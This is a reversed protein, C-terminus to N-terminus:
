AIAVTNATATTLTANISTVGTIGVLEVLSDTTAGHNFVMTADNAGNGDTDYAFAITDLAATNAHLYGVVDALNTSSIVLATAYVAADDFLAVGGTLSHSLITGSDTSTALTGVAGVGAFDIVDSFNTGDAVDFGNVKDFATATSDGEAVVFHATAAVDTKNTGVKTITDAGTGGTITIAQSTTQVALAGITVSITDAGAGTSVIISSGDGTAGIWTNDGTVTVTDNGSGTTITIDSGATAGVMSTADVTFTTDVSSLGGNFTVAKTNAIVGTTITAGSAFATNFASGTTVSLDGVTNSLALQEMGVMKTFHNDTLTTTTDTVTIKDTGTGGNISGDNAGDAVLSAVNATVLDNGAGLNLTVGETGAAVTVNDILSSGTVTSGNVFTTSAITLGKSGAVTGDGTLLSADITSALTTAANTVSFATGKLNITTVKDATFSAITTTKNAGVTATTGPTATVNITEFGNATLAALNTAAATTLGTGATISLVDSTGSSAALALSVGTTQDALVKVNAAQAATMGTIAKSTMANLEVGTASGFLSMDFSDGLRIIEFNTFKAALTTTNADAVNTGLVLTDTGAGANVSGTTLVTGSTTITDNGAGGTVVQTSLTGLTAIIGGATLGSANIIAIDNDLGAGTFEVTTAAGSITVAGTAAVQDTAQSLFDGKLNTAANITVSTLTANALDVVDLVNAAGTSNITVTTATGTANGAAITAAATISDGAGQKVGNAINLTIADTATAYAFALEGQVVTGNGIIGISAATALNTVLVTGAGLNANVTTLGAIQSANLSNATTARINVTEIGTVLASGLVDLTTGVGTVNLIDAGAGGDISDSATITSNAATAQDILANFTDDGTISTTGASGKLVGSIDAATTLSFTQGTGTGVNAAVTDVAANATTVTAADSTINALQATATVDSVGDIVVAQVAFTAQNTLRLGDTNGTAGAADLMTKMINGRTAGTTAAADLQNVWNTLGGADPTRGFVNSYIATIYESNTMASPYKTIYEAQNSFDQSIQTYTMLGSTYQNMWNSLGAADPARNFAAIYIKTIELRATSITDLAM